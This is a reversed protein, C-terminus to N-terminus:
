AFGVGLSDGVYDRSGSGVAALQRDGSRVLEAVAHAFRDYGEIILVGLDALYADLDAAAGVAAAVMMHAADAELARGVPDILELHRAVVDEDTARAIFAFGVEGGADGAHEGLLRRLSEVFDEGDILCLTE